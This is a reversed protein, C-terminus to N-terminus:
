ILRIQVCWMLVCVFEVRLETFQMPKKWQTKNRVCLVGVWM